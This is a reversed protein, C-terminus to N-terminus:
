PLEVVPGFVGDGSGESHLNERHEIPVEPVTLEKPGVLDLLIHLNEDSMYPPLCMLLLFNPVKFPVVFELSVLVGTLICGKVMYGTDRSLQEDVFLIDSVWRIWVYDLFILIAQITRAFFYETNFLQHAHHMLNRAKSSSKGKTMIHTSDLPRSFNDLSTTIRNTQKQMLIMIAGLAVFALGGFLFMCDYLRISTVFSSFLNFACLAVLFGLWTAPSVEIFDFLCDEICFGAYKCFVFSSELKEQVTKSAHDDNDIHLRALISHWQNPSGSQLALVQKIFYTRLGIYFGSFEKTAQAQRAFQGQPNSPPNDSSTPRLMDHRSELRLASELRMKEAGQWRCLLAKGRLAVSLSQLFFCVMASFLNIHVHEMTHRWATVDDPFRGHNPPQWIELLL